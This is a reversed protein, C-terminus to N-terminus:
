LRICAYRLRVQTGPQLAQSFKLTKGVVSYAVGHQVPTLDVSLDMPNECALNLESLRNVINTGINILQSGYNSACINGIVGETMLSGLAYIYGVSGRVANAYGANVQNSQASLCASDYGNFFNKPKNESNEVPNGRYDVEHIRIAKEAVEEATHGSKLSGPKVIISHLSLTKSGYMQAVKSILTQPMDSAELKYSPTLNYASSREDEDALFVIALHANQRIWKSGHNAVSLNAAYIGREDGSPCKERMQNTPITGTPYQRLLEECQLTEARKINSAFLTERNADSSSIFLKGNSFPILKGDQLSGNGNGPAPPNNTPHSVDTTTIAIRYDIFRDDLEGLFDSFRAAIQNQEYSMSGSNDNVFLIDVLGGSATANYDFYDKGSETVCDQAFNQCRNISEDKDFKVPSCGVYYGVALGLLIYKSLGRM